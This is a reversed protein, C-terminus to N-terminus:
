RPSARSAASGSGGGCRSRGSRARRSGAWRGSRAPAKTAVSLATTASGGGGTGCWCSGPAERGAYLEAPLSRLVELGRLNWVGLPVALVIMAWVPAAVLYLLNNGSLFGVLGLLSSGVVAVVGDRTPRTGISM